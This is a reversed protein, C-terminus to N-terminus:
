SKLNGCGGWAWLAVSWRAKQSRHIVVRATEVRGRRDLSLCLRFNEGASAQREASVVALLRDSSRNKRQQDTLAVRLAEQVQADVVSIPEYPKVVSPLRAHSRLRGRSALPMGMADFLIGVAALFVVGGLIWRGPRPGTTHTM